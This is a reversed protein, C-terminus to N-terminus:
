QDYPPSVESPLQRPKPWRRFSSAEVAIPKAVRVRHARVKWRGRQADRRRRARAEQERHHREREEQKDVDGMWAPFGRGNLM